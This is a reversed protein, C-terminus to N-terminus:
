RKRQAAQTRKAALRTISCSLRAALRHLDARAFPNLAALLVTDDASRREASPPAHSSVLVLFDTCSQVFLQRRQQRHHCRRGLAPSGAQAVLLCEVADDEYELERLRKADPVDMGCYKALWKYFTADSFGGKRCLEKIPLGVEAQKIFSIIQEETYRSKRM